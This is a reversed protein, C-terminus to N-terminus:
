ASIWGTLDNLPYLQLDQRNQGITFDQALNDIKDGAFPHITKNFTGANGGFDKIWISRDLPADSVLLLENVWSSCKPLNVTQVGALNLLIIGDGISITYTPTIVTTYPRVFVETWGLSSGRYVRVRHYGQGSQDLDAMGDAVGLELILRGGDEQDLLISDDALLFAVM